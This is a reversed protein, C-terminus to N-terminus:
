CPRDQAPAVCHAGLFNEWKCGGDQHVGLLCDMRQCPCACAGHSDRSRRIWSTQRYSSIRSESPADHTSAWRQSLCYITCSRGSKFYWSWIGGECVRRLIHWDNGCESPSWFSRECLSGEKLSYTNLPFWWRSGRLTHTRFVFAM